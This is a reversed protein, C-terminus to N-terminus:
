KRNRNVSLDFIDWRNYHGSTDMALKEKIVTDLLPLTAYLIEEKEFQPPLLYQGDPGIICSGGNLLYQDPKEALHAPISLMVPIDKVKMIQGAAIVFCRGEFAYHRSAIQHMEHVAPWLAIHLQENENHLVQRALPMWHEWCILGGINGWRSQVTQLGKGDGNGYLLKENFTPVLKRHHNIIVGAEDIIIFSNYLTGNGPGTMVKENLGMVVMVKNESAARCLEKIEQGGIDASNNHMLYFAEKVSDNNWLATDPCHDVWSPYGCLWTEGFVVLGAGKTAAEKIAQIAKALSKPLNFYIPSQQIVAVTLTEM